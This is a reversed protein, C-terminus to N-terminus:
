RVSDGQATNRMLCVGGATTHWVVEPQWGPFLAAGYLEPARGVLWFQRPPLRRLLTSDPAHRLTAWPHQSHPSYYKYGIYWVGPSVWTSDNYFVLLEDPAAYTDIIQALRQFDEKAPVGREARIGALLALSTIVGVPFLDCFYKLRPLHVGALIAYLAPSALVTYRTFQLLQSHHLLDAAAVSLIIGGSRLIWLLLDPRRRLQLMLAVVVTAAAIHAALPLREAVLEGCCYKLPLEAMRLLVHIAHNPSSERIYSPDFNPLSRTQCYFERGWATITIAAAAFFAALTRRRDRGDLRIMAYVGLAAFAGAAFYHTLLMAALLFALFVLRPLAAGFFSIRVVLDCCAVGQLILLPYSRAEQAIDLQGIALTMIAAAFL